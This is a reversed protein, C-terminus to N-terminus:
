AKPLGTTGSSYPMLSTTRSDITVPPADQETSTLWRVFRCRGDRDRRIRSTARATPSRWERDRHMERRMLV